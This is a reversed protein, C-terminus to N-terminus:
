EKEKELKALLAATMAKIAKRAAQEDSAALIVPNGCLAVLMEWSPELLLARLEAPTTM